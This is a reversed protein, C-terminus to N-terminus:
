LYDFNSTRMRLKVYSQGARPTFVTEGIGVKNDSADVFLQIAILM